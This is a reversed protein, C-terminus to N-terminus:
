SLFIQKKVPNINKDTLAFLVTKFDIKCYKSIPQIYNNFFRKAETKVMTMRSNGFQSIILSQSISKHLYLTNNIISYLFHSKYKDIKDISQETGHILFKPTLHLFTDDDTLEFKIEPYEKEITITELDSKRVKYYADYDSLVFLYKETHLLPFIRKLFDFLHKQKELFRDDSDPIIGNEKSAEFYTIKEVLEKQKETFVLHEDRNLNDISKFHSVLKNGQKNEKGSIVVIEMEDNLPLDMDSSAFLAFGPSRKQSKRNEIVPVEIKVSNNELEKFGTEYQLEVTENGKVPLLSRYEPKLSIEIEFYAYNFNFYSNFKKGKLGYVELMENKLAKLNKPIILEFIDPQNSNAIEELISSQHLCLKKVKKNCSCSTLLGKSTHWFKVRFTNYYNSYTFHLKNDAIIETEIEESESYYYNSTYQQLLELTILQYDSILFPQSSFRLEITPKPIPKPNSKSVENKLYKNIESRIDEIQNKKEKRGGFEEQLYRLAAVQHKCVPGWDYPCTCRSKIYDNLGSVVVIYLSGGRVEFNATGSKKNISASGVKKDKFLKEGRDLIESPAHIDLYDEIRDVIKESM